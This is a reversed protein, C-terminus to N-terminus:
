RGLADGPKMEPPLLNELPYRTGDHWTLNTREYKKALWWRLRNVRELRDFYAIITKQAEAFSIQRGGRSGELYLLHVGRESRVLPSLEGPEILRRMAQYMAEPFISKGDRGVNAFDQRFYGEPDPGIMLLGGNQAFRDQSLEKAYQAFKEARQDLAVAALQDRAKQAIAEVQAQNDKDTALFLHRVKVQVAERFVTDKHKRYFDQIERPSPQVRPPKGLKIMIEDFLMDAAFSDRALQTMKFPDQGMRRLYDNVESERLKLNQSNAEDQILKIKILENLSRNSLEQAEDETLRDVTRGPYIKEAMQIAMETVDEHTVKVGNIQVMIAHLLRREGGRCGTALALTLVLLGWTRRSGLGRRALHEM